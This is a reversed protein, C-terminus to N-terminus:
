RAVALGGRVVMGGGLPEGEIFGRSKYGGQVVVSAWRLWKTELPLSATAYAAAGTSEEVTGDDLVRPQHWVHVDADIRTRRWTWAPTRHVAVGFSRAGPAEGFRLSVRTTALARAITNDVAWETGFPTLYFRLAPLYRAGGIRITPVAVTSRGRWLYSVALGYVAYGLMPDALGVIARQRLDAPRLDSGAVEGLIRLFDSVDHGEEELEDDTGLIYGVSDLRGLLYRLMDRHTTEGHHIARLAVRSAGVNNAEMGGVTVALLEEATPDRDFEFSTSGGGEGYPPPVGITYRIPGDFRERLRAGHGFVEHNVVRLWDEVPLDIAFLRAFRYSAGASRRLASDEEFLRPPLLRDEARGLLTGALDVVASGAVPTFHRDAVAAPMTQGDARAAQIFLCVAALVPALRIM